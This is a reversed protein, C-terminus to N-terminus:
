RLAQGETPENDHGPYVTRGEADLVHPPMDGIAYDPALTASELLRTNVVGQTTRQLHKIIRGCAACGAGITQPDCDEGFQTLASACRQLVGLAVDDAVAVTHSPAVAPGGMAEVLGASPGDLDDLKARLDSASMALRDFTPSNVQSAVDIVDSLYVRVSSAASRGRRASTRKNNM